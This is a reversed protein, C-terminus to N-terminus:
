KIPVMVTFKTYKDVESEMQVKGGLSQTVINQIISM